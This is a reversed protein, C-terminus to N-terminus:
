QLRALVSALVGFVEMVDHMTLSPSLGNSAIYTRQQFIMFFIM